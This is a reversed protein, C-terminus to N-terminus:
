VSPLSSRQYIAFENVEPQSGILTGHKKLWDLLEQNRVPYHCVIIWDHFKGVWEPDFDWELGEVDTKLVRDDCSPCRDMIQDATAHGRIHRYDFSYFRQPWESFGIVKKAGRSLFYMPTVGYDCGVDIVTRGAVDLTDYFAFVYAVAAIPYAIADRIFNISVSGAGAFFGPTSWNGMSNKTAGYTATWNLYQTSSPFLGTQSQRNNGGPLPVSGSQYAFFDFFFVTLIVFVSFAMAITRLDTKM